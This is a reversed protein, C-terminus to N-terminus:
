IVVEFKYGRDNYMIIKQRRKVNNSCSSWYVNNIIKNQLKEKSENKKSCCAGWLILFALGVPTVAFPIFLIILLIVFFGKCLKDIINLFNTM